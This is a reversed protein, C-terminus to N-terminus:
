PLASPNKQVYFPWPKSDQLITSDKLPYDKSCSRDFIQSTVTKALIETLWTALFRALPATEDASPGVVKNVSKVVSRQRPHLRHTATTILLFITKSQHTWIHIQVGKIQEFQRATLDAKPRFLARKLEKIPSYFTPAPESQKRPRKLVMKFALKDLGYAISYAMIFGIASAGLEPFGPSESFFRTEKSNHAGTSLEIFFMFFACYYVVVRRNQSPITACPLLTFFWIAMWHTILPAGYQPVFRTAWDVFGGMGLTAGLSVAGLVYKMAESGGHSM